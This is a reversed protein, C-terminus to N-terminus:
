AHKDATVFYRGGGQRPDGEVQYGFSSVFAGPDDVGWHEGPEGALSAAFGKTLCDFLIRSGVASLNQVHAFMRHVATDTLYFVLGEMVWLTPKTATFGSKLLEAHWDDGEFDCAVPVRDAHAHQCHSSYVDRPCNALVHEKFNIMLPLDLEYFTTAGRSPYRLSRTDLGAGLLVIQDFGSASSIGGDFFRFRCRTLPNSPSSVTESPGLLLSPDKIPNTTTQLRWSTNPLPIKREANPQSGCPPERFRM